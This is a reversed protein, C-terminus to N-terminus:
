LAGKKLPTNTQWSTESLPTVVNISNWMRISCSNFVKKFVNKHMYTIMVIRQGDGGHKTIKAVNILTTFDRFM